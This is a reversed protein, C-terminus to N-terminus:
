TNPGGDPRAMVSAYYGDRLKPETDFAYVDGDEDVGVWCWVAPDLGESKVMETIQQELNM